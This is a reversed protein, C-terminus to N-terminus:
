SEDGGQPTSFSQASTPIGYMPALLLLPRFDNLSAAIAGVDRVTDFSSHDAEM